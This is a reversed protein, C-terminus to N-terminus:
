HYGSDYQEWCSGFWWINNVAFFGQALKHNGIQWLSNPFDKKIHFPGAQFIFSLRLDYRRGEWRRNNARALTASNTKRKEKQPSASTVDVSWPWKNRREENRENTEKKKERSKKMEEWRRWWREDEGWRIRLSSLKLRTDCPSVM